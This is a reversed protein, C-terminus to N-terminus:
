ETTPIFKEYLDFLRAPLEKRKDLDRLTDVVISTAVEGIPLETTGAFEWDVKQNVKDEVIGYDELEDETFSLNMRLQSLVKLTVYDGKAPLISLLGIREAVTLKM